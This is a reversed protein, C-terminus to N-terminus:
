PLGEIQDHEKAWLLLAKLPEIYEEIVQPPTSASDVLNDGVTALGVENTQDLLQSATVYHSRALGELKPMIANPDPSELVIALTAWQLPLMQRVCEEWGTPILDHAEVDSSTAQPPASVGEDPALKTAFDPHDLLYAIEDRYDEAVVWDDGEIFILEDGLEALARENVQDFLLSMFQHAAFAKMTAPKSQWQAERLARLLTTAESGADGMIATLAALDTLLGDPADQPRQFRSAHSSLSASIANEVIASQAPLEVNPPTEDTELLRQRLEDSERQLAAAGALDISVVRKPPVKVFAQDLVTAWAPPLTVGRLKTKYGAQTRLINETYRLIAKLDGRLTEETMWPRVRGIVIPTAPYRHVAGQLPLRVVTQTPLPLHLEYLSRQQSQQVFGDVVAVGRKLSEDLALENQFAQYFRSQQAAYDALTFLTTAPLATYDRGQQHWAELQLTETNRSTAGVRLAAAYWALVSESLQNLVGFDAVWDVLYNDLKPQLTRYAQWFTILRARGDAPSQVGVLNLLEYVYVFLYSLDTALFKGQRLQTRWYFYWQEQEFSMQSYTPSYAEFPVYNGVYEQRLAWDQAQQM